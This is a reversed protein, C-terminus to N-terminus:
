RRAARSTLASHLAGLLADARPDPGDSERLVNTVYSFGAELDPWAGHVSGGSGPHGFAVTKELYPKRGRALCSRGLAITGPALLRYGDIKGGRALCGYLRAISRACAIGNSAPIEV